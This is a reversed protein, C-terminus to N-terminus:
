EVNLNLYLKSWSTPYPLSRNNIYGFNAFFADWENPQKVNIHGWAEDFATHEPTSSFLIYKPKIRNFLNKIQRNTMHEATEIFLMIDTTVPYDILNIHPAYKRIYEKHSPFIEFSVVDFGTRIFADSYVGTGAGFDLVSKGYQKMQQATLEALRLFNPNDFSVGTDLEYQLFEKDNFKAM